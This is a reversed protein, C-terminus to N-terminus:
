NGAAGQALGQRAGYQDKIANFREPADGLVMVGQCRTQCDYSARQSGRHVTVVHRPQSVEIIKSMIEQGAADLLVMNTRGYSKGTLVILAGNQVITADAIVPNGIVVTAAQRELKLIMAQDLVVRVLEPAPGAARAPAAAALIAGLVAARIRLTRVRFM